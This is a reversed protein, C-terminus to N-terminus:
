PDDDWTAAEDDFRRREHVQEVRTGSSRAPVPKGTSETDDYSPESARACCIASASPVMWRAEIGVRGPCPLVALRARGAAMFAGYPRGARHPEDCAHRSM